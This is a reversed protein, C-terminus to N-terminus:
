AVSLSTTVQSYFSTFGGRDEWNDLTTIWAPSSACLPTELSYWVGVGVGGTGGGAIREQKGSRVWDPSLKADTRSVNEKPKLKSVGWAATPGYLDNFDSHTSTHRERVWWWRESGNSGSLSCRNWLGANGSGESGGSFQTPFFVLALSSPLSNASHYFECKVLRASCTLASSVPPPQATNLDM